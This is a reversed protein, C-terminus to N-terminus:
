SKRMKEKEREEKAGCHLDGFCSISRSALVSVAAVDEVLTIALTMPGNNDAYPRM